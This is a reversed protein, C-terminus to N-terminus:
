NERWHDIYWNLPTRLPTKRYLLDLPYYITAVIAVVPHDELGSREVVYVVPGISLVYLIPLAILATQLGTGWGNENASM